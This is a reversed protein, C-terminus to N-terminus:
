VPQILTSLGATHSEVLVHLLDQVKILVGRPLVVPKPNFPQFATCFFLVQPHQSITLQVRALLTSLHGLLGIADQSTDSITYGAPFLPSLRGTSLGSSAEGQDSHETKCGESCFLCQPEPSHGSFFLAPSPEQACTEHPAASPVPIM